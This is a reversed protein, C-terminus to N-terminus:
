LDAPAKLEAGDLVPRGEAGVPLPKLIPRGAKTGIREVVFRHCRACALRRRRHRVELAREDDGAGGAAGAAGHEVRECAAHRQTDGRAAAPRHAVNGAGYEVHGVGRRVFRGKLAGAPEEQEARGADGVALHDCAKEVGGKRGAHGADDAHRHEAGVPQLEQRM